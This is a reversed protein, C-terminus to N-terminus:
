FSVEIYEPLASPDARWHAEAGVQGLHLLWPSKDWKGRRPRERPTESARSLRGAAPCM